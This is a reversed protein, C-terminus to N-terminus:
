VTVIEVPAFSESPVAIVTFYSQLKRVPDPISLVGGVTIDSDGAFPDVSTPIPLM